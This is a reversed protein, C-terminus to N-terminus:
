NTKIVEFKKIKMGKGTDSGKKYYDVYWDEPYGFKKNYKVDVEAENELGHKIADFMKEITDFDRYIQLTAPNVQPTPEILTAKGDRIEISVSDAPNGMGAQSAEATFNYDVIKQEVWLRRNRELESKAKNVPSEAGEGPLNNIPQNERNLVASDAQSDRDCGSFQFSIILFIFFITLRTM